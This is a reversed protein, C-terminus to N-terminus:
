TNRDETPMLNEILTHLFWNCGESLAWYYEKNQQSLKWNQNPFDIDRIIRKYIALEGKATVM